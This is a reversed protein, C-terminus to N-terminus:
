SWWKSMKTAMKNAYDAMGRIEGVRGKQKEIMERNHDLQTAIEGGTDEMEAVLAVTKSITENQNSLKESTAMMKARQDLSGKSVSVSGGMLVKRDVEAKLSKVTSLAMAKDECSRAEIKLNKLLDTSQLQFQSPDSSHLDSSILERLEGEYQQFGTLFSAM